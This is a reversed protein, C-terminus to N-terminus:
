VKRGTKVKVFNYKILLGVQDASDCVLVTGLYARQVIKNGVKCLQVGVTGIQAKAM